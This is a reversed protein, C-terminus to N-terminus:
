RMIVTRKIQGSHGRSLTMILPVLIIALINIGKLVKSTLDNCCRTTYALHEDTQGAESDPQDEYILVSLTVVRSGYKGKLIIIIKCVTPLHWQM